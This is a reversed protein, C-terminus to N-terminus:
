KRRRMQFEIRKTMIVHFRRVDFEIIENKVTGTSDEIIVHLTEAEEMAQIFISPERIIGTTTTEFVGSKDFASRRKSRMSDAIESWISRPAGAEPLPKRETFSQFPIMAVQSRLPFPSKVVACRVPPLKGILLRWSLSEEARGAERSAKRITQKGKYYLKDVM